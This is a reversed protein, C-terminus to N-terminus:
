CLVKGLRGLRDEYEEAELHNLNWVNYTAVKVVRCGSLADTQIGGCLHHQCKLHPCWHCACSAIPHFPAHFLYGSEFAGFPSESLSEEISKTWYEPSTPCTASHHFRKAFLNGRTEIQKRVCSDTSNVFSRSIDWRWSSTHQYVHYDHRHDRTITLNHWVSPYHPTGSSSLSVTFLSGLVVYMRQIYIRNSVIYKQELVFPTEGDATYYLTKCTISRLHSLFLDYVSEHLCKM